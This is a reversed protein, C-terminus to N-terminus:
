RAARAGAGSNRGPADRRQLVPRGDPERATRSPTGAASGKVFGFRDVFGQGILSHLLYERTADVQPDIVHTTLTPSKPTVKVGIDRSVQGVWVPRAEHRFPAQWLRMHNRQAISRRARQLAVDQKRGFVYLSSVPAVPYARAPLQPQSKAGSRVCISATRSRGGM